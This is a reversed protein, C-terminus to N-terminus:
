HTYSVASRTSASRAALTAITPAAGARAAGAGCMLVTVGCCPGEPVGTSMVPDFKPAGLGKLVTVKLPTCPVGVIQCSPRMNACTGSPAVEPGTTTLVSAPGLLPTWNVTVFM